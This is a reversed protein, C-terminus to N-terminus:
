PLRERLGSAADRDVWWTVLGSASPLGAAPYNYPDARPSLVHALADSKGKGSVLVFIRAATAIAPLTLTLRTSPEAPVTVAVVWRTTEQLAPSRPFLSATHGDEGMGLLILDFPPSHHGAEARLTREYDHAAADPSALHTPMPHVNQFPLPVQELLSEQVM